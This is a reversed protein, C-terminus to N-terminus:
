AAKTGPANADRLDGLMALTEQLARLIEDNRAEIREVRRMLAAHDAPDVAPGPDPSPTVAPFIEAGSARALVIGAKVARLEDEIQSVRVLLESVRQDATSAKTTLFEVGAVGSTRWRLAAHLTEDRAPVFLDFAGPPEFGAPFLIRAGTASYNTMECDVPEAGDYFRAQAKIAVTRRELQRRGTWTTRM